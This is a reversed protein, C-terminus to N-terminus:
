RGLHTILLSRAGLLFGLHWRYLWVPLRLVSKFVGSPKQRMNWQGLSMPIM